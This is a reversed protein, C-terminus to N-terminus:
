GQQLKLESLCCLHATSKEGGWFKAPIALAPVLCSCPTHVYLCKKQRQLNRSLNQLLQWIQSAKLKSYQGNRINSNDVLARCLLSPSLQAYVWCPASCKGQWCRLNCCFSSTTVMDQEWRWAASSWAPPRCNNWAGASFCCPRTTTSLM